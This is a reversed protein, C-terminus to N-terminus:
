VKSPKIQDIHLGGLESAVIQIPAVNGTDLFNNKDEETFRKYFAGIVPEVSNAAKQVLASLHQEVM